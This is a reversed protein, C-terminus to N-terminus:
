FCNLTSVIRIITGKERNKKEKCYTIIIIVIIMMIIM